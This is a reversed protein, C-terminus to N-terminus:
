VIWGCTGPCVSNIDEFTMWGIRSAVSKCNCQDRHRLDRSLSEPNSRYENILWGYLRTWPSQRFIEPTLLLFLSKEPERKGLAEPLGKNEELLIDICRALQNRKVNYTVQKDIDSLVKSEFLVSFGNSSNVLIADIHTPGEFPRKSEREAADLIYPIFHTDSLHHRLWRTYKVPSPIQAEFYLYLEGQLCDSWTNMGQIPPENGFQSSLLAGWIKQSDPRDFVSKLTTATWFREDKEIQRPGRSKSVPIGKLDLNEALFENYREASRILYDVQKEADVLFHQHLEEPEFPLYTIDIM